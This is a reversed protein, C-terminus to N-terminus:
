FSSRPHVPSFGHGDDTAEFSPRSPETGPHRWGAEIEKGLTEELSSPSKPEKLEWSGVREHGKTVPAAVVAAGSGGMAAGNKAISLDQDSALKASGKFGGLMSPRRGFVSDRRTFRVGLLGALLGLLLLVALTVAAGIAGAVPPSVSSGWRSRSSSGGSSPSTSPPFGDSGEVYAPCFVSYASCTTCWGGVDSMMIQTMESEFDTWMMDTESPGRNFIPYAQYNNSADTTDTSNNLGYDTGNRFYFRVWLEDLSPYTSNSTDAQDSPGDGDGNGDQSYLEFVLVSGFDPLGYFNSNLDPLGLLSFLAVMPDYEGVILNFKNTAGSTAM